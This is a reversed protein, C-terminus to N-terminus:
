ERHWILNNELGLSEGFGYRARLAREGNEGIDAHSHSGALCQGDHACGARAFRREEGHQRAQIRRGGAAHGDRPHINGVEVFVPARRDPPPVDPEHKLGEVENVAKSFTISGSSSL